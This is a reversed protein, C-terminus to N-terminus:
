RRRSGRQRPGAQGARPGHRNPRRQGPTARDLWTVLADALAQREADRLAPPLYHGIATNAQELLFSFVSVETVAEAHPACRRSSNRHGCAEADRVMNWLAAWCSARALPDGTHGPPGAPNGPLARRLRGHRLQRRRRQAPDSGPAQSAPWSGSTSAPRRHTGRRPQRHAGARRRAHQLPRRQARAPPPDPAQTMPDIGSQTLRAATVLVGDSEELEMGLLPVGATKLWADAWSDM